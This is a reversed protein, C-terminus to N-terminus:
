SVKTRGPARSSNTVSLDEQVCLLSRAPRWRGIPDHHEFFAVYKVIRDSALSRGDKKAGAFRPTLPQDNIEFELSCAETRCEVHMWRDMLSQLHHAAANADHDAIFNRDSLRPLHDFKAGPYRVPEPIRSDRRRLQREVDPRSFSKFCEYSIHDTEGLIALCIRHAHWIKQLKGGDSTL